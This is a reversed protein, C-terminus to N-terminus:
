LDGDAVAAFRRVYEILTAEFRERTTEEPLGEDFLQQFWAAQRAIDAPIKALLRAQKAQARSLAAATGARRIMTIARANSVVDHMVDWRHERPDIIDFPDETLFGELLADLDEQDTIGLDKMVRFGIHDAYLDQTINIAHHLFTRQYEHEQARRPLSEYAATIADDDHSPHGSDMRYVHSLEHALLGEIPGAGLALDSVLIGFGDRTPFMTAMARLGVRFHARVPARVAFGLRAMYALVRDLASGLAADDLENM